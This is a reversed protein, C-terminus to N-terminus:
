APGSPIELIQHDDCSIDLNDWLFELIWFGHRSLFHIINVSREQLRNRPYLTSKLMKWSDVLNQNKGKMLHFSRKEMHEIQYYIKNFSTTSQEPLSPDIKSLERQMWAQFEIFRDKAEKFILDPERGLKRELIEKTVEESNRFIDEFKIGTKNIHRKIRNDVLTASVHPWIIPMEIGFFEYVKKLQAFYKLESPGGIYTITPFLFDQIIPRFSVKPSFMEPHDSALKLLEEDQLVVKGDGYGMMEGLVTLPIRNNDKTIFVNLLEERVKIQIEYHEADLENSQEKLLETMRGKKLLNHTIIPSALRKLATNESDVMILGWRGVLRVMMKGFAEGFTVGPCYTENIMRRVAELYDNDPLHHNFEDIFYKFDKGLKLTGVSKHYPKRNERYSIKVSERGSILYVHNAVDFDHDSCEMWFLPVVPRNLTNKLYEAVKITTIAKYITYIPGTFICVQQGTIVTLCDEQELLKINAEIEPTSNYQLNIERLIACLERRRYDHTVVRKELSFIDELKRPHGNYFRCLRRNAKLYDYFLTGQDPIHEFNLRDM